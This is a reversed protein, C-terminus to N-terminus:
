EWAGGAYVGRALNAATLWCAAETTVGELRSVDYAIATLWAARGECWDAYAGLGSDPCTGINGQNADM